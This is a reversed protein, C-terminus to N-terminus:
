NTASSVEALPESARASYGLRKSIEAATRVVHESLV